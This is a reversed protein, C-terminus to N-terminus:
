AGRGRRGLLGQPRLVLVTAMALFPLVIDLEPVFRAGFGHLAGLILGGLLAGPFSGFGGIVVVIFAEIIVAEGMAPGIARMPAALVGALAALWVGFAFVLSFLRRVDIGVAEAMERDAAAARVMRGVRTAAFLYWIGLGVAAAAAIVFLNYRPYVVGLLAAQGDLLPPPELVHIGSGWIMRVSDDLILLLAFTLLLGYTPDRGYARHLFARELVTAFAAVVVPVVLLALWFGGFDLRALSLALYAGLMYLAGHAFNLLGLVGFVITLGSAILFLLLGVDLSNLLASVFAM